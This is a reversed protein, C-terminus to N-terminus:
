LIDCHIYILFIRCLHYKRCEGGFQQVWLEWISTKKPPQLANPGVQALLEATEEDSLGTTLHDSNNAKQTLTDIVNQIPLSEYPIDASYSSKEAPAVGLPPEALTVSLCGSRRWKDAGYYPPVIFSITGESVLLLLCCTIFKMEWIKPQIM